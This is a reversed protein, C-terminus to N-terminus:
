HLEAGEGPDRSAALDIVLTTVAVDPQGTPQDLLEFFVVSSDLLGRLEEVPDAGRRDARVYAEEVQRRVGSDRCRLSGDSEFTALVHPCPDHTLGADELLVHACVPCLFSATGSRGERVTFPHPKGLEYVIHIGV